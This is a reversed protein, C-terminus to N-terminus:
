PGRDAAPENATQINETTGSIPFDNLGVEGDMKAAHPHGIVETMKHSSQPARVLTRNRIVQFDFPAVVKRM